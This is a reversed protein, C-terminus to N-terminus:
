EACRPVSQLSVSVHCPKIGWLRDLADAAQVYLEAQEIALDRTKAEGHNLGKIFRSGPAVCWLWGTSDALPTLFYRRPFNVPDM